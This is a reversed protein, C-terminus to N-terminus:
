EDMVRQIEAILEDFRNKKVEIPDHFTFDIRAFPLPIIYKDWRKKLTIKHKVTVSVPLVRKKALWATTLFFRQPVHYPGLPGDMSYCIHKGSATSLLRRIDLLTSDPDSEDPMHFPVYGFRRGVAAILNGRKHKTTIIFDGRKQLEPYYCFSSGHWFGVAFTEEGFLADHRGKRTVRSTAHVIRIYLATLAATLGGKHGMVNQWRAATYM